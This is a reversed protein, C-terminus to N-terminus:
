YYYFPFKGKKRFIKSSFLGFSFGGVHAWWAVGGSFDLMLSSFVGSLLQMLFWIGLYFFAPIYIFELFFGLVAMTLIRARPFFRFYAGLVGAIAGSAGIAPTYLDRSFIVQVIGAFAGALIYFILYRFHGMADEVNDGFIYLFLMNGILHSWSGHLFMSTFLSLIGYSLLQSKLFRYPVVGFNFIINERVSSPLMIEWLFVIVNILILTWNVIPHIRSPVDDKLPIM